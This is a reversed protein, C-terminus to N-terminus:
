TAKGQHEAFGFVVKLMTRLHYKSKIEKNEILEDRRVARDRHFGLSLDDSGRASTVLNYMLSVIPAHSIDELHKGSSTTM